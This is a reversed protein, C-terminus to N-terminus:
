NTRTRETYPLPKDVRAGMGTKYGNASWHLYKNRLKKLHETDIFSTYPMAWLESIYKDNM